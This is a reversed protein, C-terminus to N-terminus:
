SPLARAFDRAWSQFLGLCCGEGAPDAAGESLVGEAGAGAADEGAAAGSAANAATRAEFKAWHGKLAAWLQCVANPYLLPLKGGDEIWQYQLRFYEPSFTNCRDLLLAILATSNATAVAIGQQRQEWSKQENATRERQQKPRRAAEGSWRDRRDGVWRDWEKGVGARHMQRPNSSSSEASPSSEVAASSELQQQQPAQQPQQQPELQQKLLNTAHDLVARMLPWSGSPQVMRSLSLLLQGLQHSNTQRLKESDNLLLYQLLEQM